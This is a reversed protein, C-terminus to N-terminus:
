LEAFAVLATVNDLGGAALAQAVLAESAAEATDAGALTAAIQGDGLMDTLGDSCLLLRDGGQLDMRCLDADVLPEVGLARTLVGHMAEPDEDIGADALAQSVSHDRTLRILQQGRLVYARSDGVHGVTLQTGWRWACVVTTGMGLCEPRRAAAALISANAREIARRMADAHGTDTVCVEGGGSLNAAIAEVALASAVEGANYGGMGDALVLLGAPADIRWCDENHARTYGPHSMGACRLRLGAARAANLPATAPRAPSVPQGLTGIAPM